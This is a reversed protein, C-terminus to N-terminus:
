LRSLIARGESLFSCLYVSFSAKWFLVGVFCSCSWCKSESMESGPQTVDYMCVYVSVYVCVIYCRLMFTCVCVCLRVSLCFWTKTRKKKRQKARRFFSSLLFPLCCIVSFLQWLSISNFPWIFSFKFWDFIVCICSRSWLEPPCATHRNNPPFNFNSLKRSSKM